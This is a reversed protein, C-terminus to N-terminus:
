DFRGRQRLRIQRLTEVLMATMLGFILLGNAAALGGLLYFVLFRGSGITAEINDAFVWLFLMNGILHLLSGHLFMSTVLTILNEGLMTEAPVSGWQGVLMDPSQSQFWFIVVNLVIFAYSFLPYHGGKVQDDGIPFFM